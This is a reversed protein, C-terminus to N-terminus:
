KNCEFITLLTDEPLPKIFRDYYNKVWFFQSVHDELEIWPQKESLFAYGWFATNSIVYNEKNGFKQFYTDRNKMNNYINEEYENEPKSHEMVMEWAREYVQGGHLHMHGWDIENKRAQFVERGDKLMFPISFLKGKRYYSWKGNPNETTMADGNTDDIQYGITLNEYFELDDMAMTEELEYSIDKREFESLSDNKLLSSYFQIYNQRLMGADKLHFKAYPEMVKNKDYESMLADPNEGAVICVFHKYDDSTM